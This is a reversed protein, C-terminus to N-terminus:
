QKYDYTYREVIKGNHDKICSLRGFTDYEYSTRTGNPAISRTLNGGSDYYFTTVQCGAHTVNDRLAEITNMAEDGASSSRTLANIFEQGLTTAISGNYVGTIRAVLRTGRGSWLYFAEETDDKVARQLDGCVTYAPYRLRTSLNSGDLTKVATPAYFYKSWQKYDTVTKDTLLGDRYVAKEFVPSLINAWYMDDYLATAENENRMENTYKLGTTVTSGDSATVSERIVQGHDNYAYETTTSVGDKYEVIKVPLYEASTIYYNYYDYLSGGTADVFEGYGYLNATVASAANGYLAIYKSVHLNMHDKRNIEGYTNELSYVINGNKNKVIKRKLKGCKWEQQYQPHETPQSRLSYHPAANCTDSFVYETWGEPSDSVGTFETVQPYVVSSGQYFYSAHPFPTYSYSMQHEGKCVIANEYGPLYFAEFMETLTCFDRSDVKRVARALDYAYWKRELLSDRENYSRQEKIRLGGYMNGLNDRHAEYEFTTYGKTPYVIKTLVGKKMYIENPTRDMGRITGRLVTFNPVYCDFPSDSVGGNCYGWYDIPIYGEPRTGNYEFAYSCVQNGINDYFKVADLYAHDTKELVVDKTTAGKWIRVKELSRIETASYFFEVKGGTYAIEKLIPTNFGRKHIGTYGEFSFTTTNTNYNHQFNYNQELVPRWLLKSTSGLNIEEYKFTITDSKDATIIRTLYHTYNRQYDGDTDKIGFQYENGQEDWATPQYTNGDFTTTSAPVNFSTGDKLVYCQGSHGPFSFNYVDYESDRYVKGSINYDHMNGNVVHELAIQDNSILDSSHKVIDGVAKIFPEREEGYSLHLGAARAQYSVTGGAMLTWGYGLEMPLDDYKLGSAHYKFEIPVKIGKVEITHIPITIDVLGTYLNTPYSGFRDMMTAKPSPTALQPLSPTDSTSQAGIVTCLLCLFLLSILRKM